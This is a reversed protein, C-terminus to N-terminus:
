YRLLPYIQFANVTTLRHKAFTTAAWSLYAALLWTILLVVGWTVPVLFLVAAGDFPAALLSGVIAIFSLFFMSNSYFGAAPMGSFFKKPSLLVGKIAPLLTEGLRNYDFYIM